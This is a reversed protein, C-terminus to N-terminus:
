YVRKLKKVTRANTRTRQGNCPLNLAHRFGIYAGIRIANQINTKIRKRLNGEIVYQNQIKKIVLLIDAKSLSDFTVDYGFGLSNLLRKSEYYGLGYITSLAIYCPKTNSVNIGFISVMKSYRKRQTYLTLVSNM